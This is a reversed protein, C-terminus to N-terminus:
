SYLRQFHASYTLEKAFTMSIESVEPWVDPPSCGPRPTEGRASDAGTLQAVWGHHRGARGCRFFVEARARGVGDRGESDPGGPGFRSSMPAATATPM